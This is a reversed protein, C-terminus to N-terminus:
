SSWRFVIWLCVINITSGVQDFFNGFLVRACTKRRPNESIERLLKDQVKKEVDWFVWVCKLIKCCLSALRMIGGYKPWELIKLRLVMIKFWKASLQMNTFSLLIKFVIKSLCNNLITNDHTSYFYKENFINPNFVFINGKFILKKEVAHLYLKNFFHLM